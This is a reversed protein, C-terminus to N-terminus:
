AVRAMEGRTVNSPPLQLSRPAGRPCKLCETGSLSIPRARTHRPHELIRLLRQLGWPWTEREERELRAGVAWGAASLQACGAAM